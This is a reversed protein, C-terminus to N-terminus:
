GEVRMGLEDVLTKFQKYQAEIFSKSEAPSMLRIISGRAEMKEVFDKNSTATALWKGWSKAIDDPLDDPGAIGTWGVLQELNPKGLDKSTPADFGVVPEATTVLLPKLQKNKVFSALASSNTCIFTATGTLVATAAGGGGKMPIHIAEKVPDEVGFEKLVMAAALHLLSGVGSSSYSVSGPKTKALAVLEEISNIDSDTRVACAVPNIEYVGVFRFDDLKYPLTAKMAPNVTHTGVRAFLLTYGDPKANQVAVSGIAGGAGGKNVMILPQGVEKGLPESLTRASIDTAGGPGYPIVM